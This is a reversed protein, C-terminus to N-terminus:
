KENNKNSELLQKALENNQQVLEVNRNILDVQEDETSEFKSTADHLQQELHSKMEIFREKEVRNAEALGENAKKVSLLKIKLKNHEVTTNDYSTQLEAINCQFTKSHLSSEILQKTLQEVNEGGSKTVENFSNPLESVKKRYEDLQKKLDDEDSQLIKMKAEFESEKDVMEKKSKEVENQLQDVTKVLNDIKHRLAESAKLKEDIENLLRGREEQHSVHLLGIENMLNYKEETAAKKMNALELNLENEREVKRMTVKEMEAKVLEWQTTKTALNQAIEIIKELSLQISNSKDLLEEYSNQKQEAALRHVESNTDSSSNQLSNVNQQLSAEELLLQYNAFINTMQGMRFSMSCPPFIGYCTLSVTESFTNIANIFHSCSSNKFWQNPM